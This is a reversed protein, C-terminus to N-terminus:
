GGGANSQARRVLLDDMQHHPIADPWPQALRSLLSNGTSVNQNNNRVTEWADVQKRLTQIDPTRRNLCQRSLASFEIEAMNLWSGHKPTHHFELKELIAHAKEPPFAEHLSGPKHTNLNDLVGRIVEAEPYAQVLREMGHAFDIKTRRETVWAERRGAAPECFLLVEAVGHRVYETDERAPQGPQMPVAERVEDILQRPTEDFCVVPRRPDYPAEYLDLVDEMAAVFDGSVEPICWEQKQWPKLENKKSVLACDGAFDVGGPGIGGGARGVIELDM